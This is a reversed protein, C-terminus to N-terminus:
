STQTDADHGGPPLHITGFTTEYNNVIKQLISAFSKAVQPSMRVVADVKIEGAVNQNVPLASISAPLGISGFLLVFDWGTVIINVSNAYFESVDEPLLIKPQQPQGRKGGNQKPTTPM